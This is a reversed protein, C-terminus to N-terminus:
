NQHYLKCLASFDVIFDKPNEPDIRLPVQGLTRIMPAEVRGANFHNFVSKGQFEYEIRFGGFIVERRAPPLVRALVPVYHHSRLAVRCGRRVIDLIMWAVFAFGIIVGVAGLILLPVILVLYTM